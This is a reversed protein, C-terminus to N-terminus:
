ATLRSMMTAAQRAAAEIGAVRAARRSGVRASRWSYAASLLCQKSAAFDLKNSRMEIPASYHSRSTRGRGGRRNNDHVSAEPTRHAAPPCTRCGQTASGRSCSSCSSRMKLLGSAEGRAKKKKRARCRWSDLSRMMDILGRKTLRNRVARTAAAIAKDASRTAGAEACCALVAITTPM